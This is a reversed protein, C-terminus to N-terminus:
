TEARVGVDEIRATAIEDAGQSRAGDIKLDRSLLTVAHVCLRPVDNPIGRCGGLNTNRLFGPQLTSRKPPRGPRSGAEERSHAAVLGPMNRTIKPNESRPGKWTGREKGKHSPRKM